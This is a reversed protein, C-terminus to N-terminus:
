IETEELNLLALIYVKLAELLDNKSAAEEAGHMTGAFSPRPREPHEPGFGVANPFDRAYTGGGITFPEAAEGTVERYANMCASIEPCSPSKYFPAADKEKTIEAVSGAARQLGELLWDSTVSPVYRSDITQYFHGDEIGIIGCVITLPTFGEATAAVGLMSGDYAKHFMDALRFFNEEEGSAIGNELIYDTMVGIANLTGAPISAHGATGRATLHWLEGEKEAKVQETNELNEAKVWAECLDPIANVAFGGQIRVVNEPSAASTMKGHWIGKEGCILPFDADPSFCFLPAPYNALYHRVDAMGTEENAGILARVPYRLQTFHEKLYKLAYLCLVTPGKDDAVGRGIIYGDRERMTFPDALWGNGEPVIDVHTITALYRDGDGGVAAYGIKDECNRTDLGLESAIKLAEDLAMKPGIGFPAGPQATSEPSKVAVLRAINEFIADANEAVYQEIDALKTNKM